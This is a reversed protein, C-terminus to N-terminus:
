YSLSSDKVILRVPVIAEHGMALTTGEVSGNFDPLVLYMVDLNRLCAKPTARTGEQAMLQGCCAM